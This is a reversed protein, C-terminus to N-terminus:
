MHSYKLVVASAPRRPTVLLGDDMLMSGSLEVTVGTDLDEVKYGTGPDLDRLKLRASEYISRARRFVQVVGAGLDPRNFQWAMWHDDADTYATLPHFDGLFYPSVMRHEDVMKRIIGFDLNDVGAADPGFSLEAVMSSRWWYVDQEYIVGTGQYPIWLSLGYTLCQQGQPSAYWDSRLLPVARRLTELDNRRGGSACSDILMGPHRTLLEDWYKFYGEVHRIEAIGQRDEADAARWYPLPDINFDQRYDDIGQDTLLRDIHDTLWRRCDPEGLKLLGGARGGHVWDPHEDAIWTGAHVREPEFWVMAKKGHEHMMDSLERLGQPFRGRDVQWTGVKPWGTGDCPYWGADQWWCDFGIKEDMHRQLFAREQRAETMLGPYYNGTCLSRQTELPKGGPMPLNHAVMWRRWVNQARLWDGQYFQLVVMPSRVTEGPRLVFHTLEQGGWVRLGAGSDREFGASWQGAWSLVCIVGAGPWQINFYPFANQTPRGGTNAIRTRTGPGLPEALPAYSRATCDDGRLRHLTYEWGSTRDFRTDIARIDSIIPTDAEGGNRFHLTWEVTPFDHYEICVCRVELRTQPDTFTLTHESRTGHRTDDVRRKLRQTEWSDLLESSPRGDYSFSFPPEATYPPRSRDHIAMDGLWLTSGDALVVRADLWDAQDCSIGDGADSCLLRLQKAGNLAVVVPVAAMGRHLVDSRWLQAGNARVTFQVSGHGDPRDTNDVGVLAEFRQAPRPLRVVLESPAHCYLGRAYQTGAVRMPKGGRANPQVPGHNARVEIANEIVPEVMEGDLKAGVWRRMEAMEVETPVASQAHGSTISLWLVLGALIAVGSSM